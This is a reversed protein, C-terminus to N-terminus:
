SEWYEAADDDDDDTLVEKPNDADPLVKKSGNKSPEVGRNASTSQVAVAPRSKNTRVHQPIHLTDLVNSFAQWGVPSKTKQRAVTDYVLDSMNSGSITQNDIVLEHNDNWGIRGSESLLQLLAAGRPRYTKALSRLIVEGDESRHVPATSIPINQNTSHTHESQNSTNVQRRYNLYESLASNYQAVKQELTLQKDNLIIEMKRDLRVTADMEPTSSQVDRRKIMDILDNPVLRM